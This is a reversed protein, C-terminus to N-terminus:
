YAIKYIYFDDEEPEIRDISVISDGPGLSINITSHGKPIIAMCSGLMSTTYYIYLDTEAPFDLTLVQKTISTKAKRLYNEVKGGGSPM